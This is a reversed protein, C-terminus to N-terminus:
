SSRKIRRGRRLIIEVLMSWRGSSRAFTGTPHVNTRGPTGRVTKAQIDL